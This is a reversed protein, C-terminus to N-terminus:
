RPKIQGLIVMRIYGSRLQGLQGLIVYVSTVVGLRVSGSIVQCLWV